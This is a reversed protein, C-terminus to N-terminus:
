ASLLSVPLLGQRELFRAAADIVQHYAESAVAAPVPATHLAALVEAHAPV